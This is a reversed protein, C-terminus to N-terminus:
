AQSRIAAVQVMLDEIQRGLQVKQASAQQMSMAKEVPNAGQPFQTNLDALQSRAGNVQAVLGMLQNRQDTKGAVQQARQAAIEMPDADDNGPGVATGAAGWENLGLDSHNFAIYSDGNVDGARVLFVGADDDGSEDQGIEWGMAALTNQAKAMQQETGNWWQAALQRLIEEEDPERDDGGVPAFEAVIDDEEDDMPIVPPRIKDQPYLKEPEPITKGPTVPKKMMDILTDTMAKSTPSQGPEKGTIQRYYNNHSGSYPKIDIVKGGPMERQFRITDYNDPDDPDRFARVRTATGGGEQMKKDTTRWSTKPQTNQVQLGKAVEKEDFPRPISPISDLASGLADRTASGAAVIKDAASKVTNSFEERLRREVNGEVIQQELERLISEGGVLRGAHPHKKTGRRPMPESGRVQDGTKQEPEGAFKNVTELLRRMDSM